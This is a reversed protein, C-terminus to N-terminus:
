QLYVIEDDIESNPSSKFESWYHPIFNLILKYLMGVKINQSWVKRVTFYINNM